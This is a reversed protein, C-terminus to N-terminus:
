QFEKVNEGYKINHSWIVANKVTIQCIRSLSVDTVATHPRFAMRLFIPSSETHRFNTTHPICVWRDQLVPNYFRNYEKQPSIDREQLPKQLPHDSEGTPSCGGPTTFQESCYLMSNQCAQSHMTRRLHFQTWASWWLSCCLSQRGRSLLCPQQSNVTIALSHFRFTARHCCAQASSHSQLYHMACLNNMLTTFPAQQQQWLLPCTSCDCSWSWANLITSDDAECM